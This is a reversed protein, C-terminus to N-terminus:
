PAESARRGDTGFWQFGEGQLQRLSNDSFPATGYALGCPRPASLRPHINAARRCTNTKARMTGRGQVFATSCCAGNGPNAVRAFISDCLWGASHTIFAHHQNTQGGRPRGSRSLAPLVKPSSNEIQPPQLTSKDAATIKQRPQGPRSSVVEDREGALSMWGLRAAFAVQLDGRWDAPHIDGTGRGAV